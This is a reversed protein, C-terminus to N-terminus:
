FSSRVLKLFLINFLPDNKCDNVYVAFIVYGLVIVKALCPSSKFSTVFFLIRSQLEDKLDVPLQFLQILFPSCNQVRIILLCNQVSVDGMKFYSEIIIKCTRLNLFTFVSILELKSGFVVELSQTLNEPVLRPRAETLTSWTPGPPFPAHIACRGAFDPHFHMQKVPDPHQSSGEASAVVTEAHMSCEAFEM